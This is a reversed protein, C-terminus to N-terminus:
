PVYQALYLGNSVYVGTVFFNGLTTGDPGTFQLEYNDLSNDIIDGVENKSQIYISALKGATARSLGESSAESTDAITPGRNIVINYPSAAVRRPYYLYVPPIIEKPRSLSTWYFHIYAEEQYEKFEIRIDYFTGQVMPLTIAIDECCTEWRDLVLTGQWYFRVGDDAKLIFTYEETSPAYVKGSWRISVFDAVEDTILGM